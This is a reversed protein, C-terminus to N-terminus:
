FLTRMTQKVSAIMDPIHFIMFVIMALVVIFLSYVGAKAFRVRTKSTAMALECCGCLVILVCVWPFDKAQQPEKDGKLWLYAAIAFMFMSSVALSLRVQLPVYKESDPVQEGPPYKSIPM